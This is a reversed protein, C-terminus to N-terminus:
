LPDGLDCSVRDLRPAPGPDHDTLSGNFRIMDTHWDWRSRTVFWWDAASVCSSSPVSEPNRSVWMEGRCQCQSTLFSRVTDSSRRVTLDVFNLETEYVVKDRITGCGLLTVVLSLFRGMERVKFM